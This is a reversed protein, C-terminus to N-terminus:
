IFINVILSRLFILYFLIILTGINMTTEGTEKLLNGTADATNEACKVFTDNISDVQGLTVAM